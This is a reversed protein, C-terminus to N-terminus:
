KMMYKHSKLLYSYNMHTKEDPWRLYVHILRSYNLQEIMYITPNAVTHIAKAREMTTAWDFVNWEDTPLMEVIDGEIEPLEIKGRGNERFTKSVLTYNETGHTEFLAEERELDREWMAFKRWDRYDMKALLYKARMYDKYHLSLAEDAWRLPIVKYGGVTTITKIEFLEKPYNEMNDWNVNPYYKQMLPLYEARIPWVVVRNRYKELAYYWYISQCFIIDSLFCPQNIFIM